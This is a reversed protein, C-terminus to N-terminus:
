YKSVEEGIRLLQNYKATREGRAPAGLKIQGNGLAVTFDAIFPDETEGSRHSVMVNWKNERALKAANIAETLTGIQNVKLLLANCLKKDVAMQIRKTNTVTLDDGVIQIKKGLNSTIAQWQEFDNQDFPDEISIINYKETLKKYLMQYEAGHKGAYRNLKYFESAAVDMAIGVKKEYGLKELAKNILKIAEEPEKIPPAFGGEDGVNTALKGYKNQIQNKLEHYSESVIRTAEEFNRAKTPAIMFEQFNLENGAHKGGNIINAFPVPMRLQKNGIIKALYEHYPKKNERAALRSVAISVGLIANAGLKQKSETGDLEIMTQDIANQDDVRLGKLKKSLFLVNKVAKRVGLGNFEGLHDRLEVAEYMGTSAGSPVIARASNSKTKAIVEITPNGRSDLVQRAQLETLKM